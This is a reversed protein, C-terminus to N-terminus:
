SAPVPPTEPEPNNYKFINDWTWDLMELAKAIPQARYREGRKEVVRLRELKDLADGIEFDVKLKARQELYLEVYDDLDAAKWGQEGAYRWLFYFALIAERCEQEEAEDLLRYLVGANSDLCQYYLSQTLQFHYSQKTQQYGYYQRYSYGAVLSFPGWLTLPNHQVFGVWVLHGLDTVAKYILFGLTGLLSAGLKGRALRPMHLRAGPLLMELDLKPIDKFVKLFVHDTDAHRGLRKHPRQKLILILRQYVPLKIEEMRWLNRMRRRARKGMTDGRAFVELRDFVHFDVDMNIGWDSSGAMAAQIEERGLHKFNAREMLWAFEKFLANLQQQRQDAPLQKLSRTDADPDFPAYADKLEELRQHYEYHFTASVLRCFQRFIDRDAARLDADSCLLDVLEKERLPIFHERDKYEAM